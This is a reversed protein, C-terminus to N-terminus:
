DCTHTSDNWSRGAEDCATRTLPQPGAPATETSSKQDAKSSPEQPREEEQQTESKEDKDGKDRKGEDRGERKTQSQKKGDKDAGFKTGSPM